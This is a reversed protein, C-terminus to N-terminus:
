KNKKDWIRGLDWKRNQKRQTNRRTRECEHTRAHTNTHTRARTHRHHHRRRVDLHKSVLRAPRTSWSIWPHVSGSSPSVCRLTVCAMRLQASLYSETRWQCHATRPTHAERTSLLVCARPFLDPEGDKEESNRRPNEGHITVDSQRASVQRNKHKQVKEAWNTQRDPPLNSARLQQEILPGSLPSFPRSTTRRHMTVHPVFARINQKEAQYSLKIM